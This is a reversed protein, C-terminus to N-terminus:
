ITLTLIKTQRGTDSDLFYFSADGMDDRTLELQARNQLLNMADVLEGDLYLAIHGASPSADKRRVNWDLLLASDSASVKLDFIVGPLEPNLLTFNGTNLYGPEHDSRFAPMPTVAYASLTMGDTEIRFSYSAQLLQLKIRHYLTNWVEDDLLYEEDGLIEWANALAYEDNLAAFPSNNNQLQEPETSKPSLKPKVAAKTAPHLNNKKRAIVSKKAKNIPLSRKKSKSNQSSRATTKARRSPAKTRTSRKAKM